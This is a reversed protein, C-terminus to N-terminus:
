LSCHTIPRLSTPTLLSHATPTRPPCHIVPHPSPLPQSTRPATFSLVAPLSHIQPPPPSATGPQPDSAATGGGRLERRPSRLHFGGGVAVLLTVDRHPTEGGWSTVARPSRREAGGPPPAAALPSRRPLWAGKVRGSGGGERQAGVRRGRRETPVPLPSVFPFRAPFCCRSAPPRPVRWAGSGEEAVAESLRM